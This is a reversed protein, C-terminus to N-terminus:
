KRTDKKSVAKFAEELAKDLDRYNKPQLKGLISKVKPCFNEITKM